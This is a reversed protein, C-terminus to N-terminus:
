YVWAQPMVAAVISVAVVIFVGTIFKGRSKFWLFLGMVAMAVLAGRSQTGIAAIGSLLMAGALGHKLWKRTEQLHLYRILPITMVLALGMENNEGIFTGAPGMVHNAGGGLITFIGGKVGYFGLSLAITWILWYLKRRDNVLLVTLFIFFQIKWIKNWQIWAADPYFALLTTFLMWGIFVLLMITERSWIMEKKEKSFLFAVITVLGVVMAFPFDYAFGYTLRHPNMYGLWSWLLVGIWPRRIVFPLAGFVIGAVFLDRM